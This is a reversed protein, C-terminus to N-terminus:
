QERLKWLWPVTGPRFSPWMKDRCLCRWGWSHAYIRHHLTYASHPWGQPAGDRGTVPCPWRSDSSTWPHTTLACASRTKIIQQPAVHGEEEQTVKVLGKSKRPDDVLHFYYARSQQGERLLDAKGLNRYQVKRYSKM